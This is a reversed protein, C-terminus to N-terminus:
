GVALRGLDVLGHDLLEGIRQRVHDAVRDVVADLRRVLADRAPLGASPVMRSDASCAPPRMTMSTASSPAADVALAHPWFARRAAAQDSGVCDSVSSCISLRIKRGPKEVASGTESMEPRPTPMSTTRRLM